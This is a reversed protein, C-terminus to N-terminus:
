FDFLHDLRAQERPLDRLWRDLERVRVVPRRQERTAQVYDHATFLVSPLVRARFDAGFDKPRAVLNQQHVAFIESEAIIIKVDYYAGLPRM